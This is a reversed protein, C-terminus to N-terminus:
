KFFWNIGKEKNGFNFLKWFQVNKKRKGEIEAWFAAIIM